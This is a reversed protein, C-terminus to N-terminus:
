RYNVSARGVGPRNKGDKYFDVILIYRQEETRNWASHLLRDNFIFAKGVEWRYITEEVQLACDGEPIILGLHCRYVDDTFGKHPKVECGPKLMSFGAAHMGPIKEVVSATFPCETVGEEIPERGFDYIGYVEWGGDYIQQHYWPIFNEKPLLNRLEELIGEANEELIQVAPYETM